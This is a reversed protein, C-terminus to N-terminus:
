RVGAATPGRKEAFPIEREREEAQAHVDPGHGDLRAAGDPLVLRGRDARVHDLVHEVAAPECGRRLVELGPEEPGDGILLEEALDRFQVSLAGNM